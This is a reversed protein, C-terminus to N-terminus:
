SRLLCCLAGLVYPLQAPGEPLLIGFSFSLLFLLLLFCPPRWVVLALCSDLFLPALVRCVSAPSCCPLLPLLGQAGRSKGWKPQLHPSKM